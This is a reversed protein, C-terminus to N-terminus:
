GNYRAQLWWLAILTVVQVAMVRFLTERFRAAGEPDGSEPDHQPGSPTTM